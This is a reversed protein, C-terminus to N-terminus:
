YQWVAELHLCTMSSAQFHEGADHGVPVSIAPLGVMNVAATFRMLDATLVADLEGAALAAPRCQESPDTSVGLSGLLNVSSRAVVRRLVPATIPITPTVIVDCTQLVDAFRQMLKSRIKLAQLLWPQPLAWGLM